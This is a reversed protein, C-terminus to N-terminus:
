DVPDYLNTIKFKSNKLRQAQTFPLLSFMGGGSPYRVSQSRERKKYQAM